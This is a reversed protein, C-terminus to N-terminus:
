QRKAGFGTTHYRLLNQSAFRELRLGVRPDSLLKVGLRHKERRLKIVNLRVILQELCHSHGWLLRASRSFVYVPTVLFFMLSRRDVPLSLCRKGCCMDSRRFALASPVDTELTRVDLRPDEFTKFALV